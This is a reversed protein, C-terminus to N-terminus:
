VNKETFRRAYTHISKDHFFAVYNFLGKKNMEGVFFHENDSFSQSHSLTGYEKGKKLWDGFHAQKM